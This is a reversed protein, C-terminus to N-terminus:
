WSLRRLGCTMFFSTRLSRSRRRGAPKSTSVCKVGGYLGHSWRKQMTGSPSRNVAEALAVSRDDGAPDVVKVSCPMRRSDPSSSSASTTTVAVPSLM